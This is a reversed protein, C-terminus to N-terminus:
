FPDATRLYEQHSEWAAHDERDQRWLEEDNEHQLIFQCDICSSEHDWPFKAVMRGCLMLDLEDERRIRRFTKSM